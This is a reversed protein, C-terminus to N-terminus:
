DLRSPAALPPSQIAARIAERSAQALAHRTMAIPIPDIVPLLQLRVSLGRTTLIAAISQVLSQDGVYACATSRKEDAHYTIAIPLLPFQPKDIAHDRIAAAFLSTHFPLVDDGQSTTGEPFFAVTEGAVLRHIIRQNAHHVAHRSGREIFVTGTGAVLWGLVPWRRIESKAVFTAPRVANLAFIDLWSVHNMAALVAGTPTPHMQQGLDRVDLRVGCVALLVRSWAKKISQQKSLPVFRYFSFLIALGVILLLVLASVRWLVRIM